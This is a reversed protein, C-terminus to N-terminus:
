ISASNKPRWFLEWTHNLRHAWYNVFDICLVGFIVKLYFPVQIINFLGFKNADTWNLVKIVLTALGFNLLIYGIQLFISSILHTTRKFLSAVRSFLQELSFLCALIAAMFIDPNINTIYDFFKEM